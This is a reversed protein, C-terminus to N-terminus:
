GTRRCLASPANHDIFMKHMRVDPELSTSTVRISGACCQGQRRGHSYLEALHDSPLKRDNPLCHRSMQTCMVRCNTRSIVQKVIEPRPNLHATRGISFIVLSPNVASLLQEAFKANRDADSHSDVNGGHHPFVLVDASVDVSTELLHKLGVEDLDGTFLVRRDSLSVKIVASITNTTVRRGQQDTTGPGTAALGRRPALVEAKTDAGLPLTLGETLDVKFDCVGNRHRDDLAYVLAKWQRSNQNADSNIYVTSIRLTDQDLLTVLGRLHDTDAHSVM